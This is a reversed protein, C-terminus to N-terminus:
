VGFLFFHTPEAHLLVGGDLPGALAWAIRMWNAERSPLHTSMVCCPGRPLSREVKWLPTLLARFIVTVLSKTVDLFPVIKTLSSYEYVLLIVSRHTFVELEAARAQPFLSMAPKAFAGQWIPSYSVAGTFPQM